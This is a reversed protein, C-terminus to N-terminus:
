KNENASAKTGARERKWVRNDFLNMREFCHLDLINRVRSSAFFRRLHLTQKVSQLFSHCQTSRNRSDDGKCSRKFKYLKSRAMISSHVFWTSSITMQTWQYVILTLSLQFSAYLLFKVHTARHRSRRSLLIFREAAAPCSCCSAKKVCRRGFYSM